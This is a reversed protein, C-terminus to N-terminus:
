ETKRKRLSCRCPLLSGPNPGGAERPGVKRFEKLNMSVGQLTLFVRDMGPWHALEQRQRPRHLRFALFFL